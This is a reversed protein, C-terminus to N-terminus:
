GPPAPTALAERLARVVASGRAGRGVIRARRPATSLSVLVSGPGDPPAIARRFREGWEICVIAGEHEDLGLERLEDPGGLRYLDAHVLHREGPLPHEHVLAFTPSQIPVSAPIGLARAIARVLFTKGAGLAGELFLVDGPALVRGIAAGLRRTARRTALPVDLEEDM